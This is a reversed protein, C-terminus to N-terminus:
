SEGERGRGRGGRDIGTAGERRLPHSAVRALADKDVVARPGVEQLWLVGDRDAAPEVPRVVSLEGQHQGPQLHSM